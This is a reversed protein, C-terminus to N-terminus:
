LKTTSTAEFKLFSGSTYTNAQWQGEEL